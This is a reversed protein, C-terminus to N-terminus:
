PQQTHILLYMVLNLSIYIKHSLKVRAVIQYYRITGITFKVVVYVLVWKFIILLNSVTNGISYVIPLQHTILAGGIKCGNILDNIM